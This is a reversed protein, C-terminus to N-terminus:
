LGKSRKYFIAAIGAAWIMLVAILGIIILIPLM